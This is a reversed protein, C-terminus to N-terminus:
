LTRRSLICTSWEKKLLRPVEVDVTCRCEMVQTAGDESHCESINFKNVFIPTLPCNPFRREYAVLILESPYKYVKVPSQYKQVM